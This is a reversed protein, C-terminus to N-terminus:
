RVINLTDVWIEIVYVYVCVCLIFAQCFFHKSTTIKCINEVSSYYNQLLLFVILLLYSCHKKFTMSSKTYRM